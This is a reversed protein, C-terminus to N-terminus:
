EESRLKGAVFAAEAEGTKGAIRRQIHAEICRLALRRRVQHVLEILRVKGINEIAITLLPTRTRNRPTDDFPSALSGDLTAAFQRRQHCRHHMPPGAADMGRCAGKLRQADGDVVFEAAQLARQWLSDCEQTRTPPEGDDAKMRQFIADDLLEELRLLAAADARRLRGDADTTARRAHVNERAM